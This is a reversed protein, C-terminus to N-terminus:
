WGVGAECIRCSVITRAERSGDGGNLQRMGSARTWTFGSGGPQRSVTRGAGGERAEGRAEHSLQRPSTGRAYGHLGYEVHTHEHQVRMSAMQRARAMAM